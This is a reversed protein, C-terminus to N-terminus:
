KREGKLEQAALKLLKGIEKKNRLYIKIGSSKVRRNINGSDKNLLKALEIQSFDEDYIDNELLIELIERQGTTWMSAIFASSANLANVPAHYPTYALDYRVVNLGYDNKKKQKAAEIAMEALTFAQGFMGICQNPNLDSEITGLAIGFRVPYTFQFSIRDIIEPILHISDEKILCQFEDGRTITFKSAIAENYKSNMKDLVNQLERQAEQRNPIKKSNIMDGIIVAYLTKNTM